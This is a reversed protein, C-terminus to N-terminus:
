QGPVDLLEIEYGRERAEDIFEPLIKVNTDSVTHLYFIAGNHLGTVMKALSEEPDPQDDVLWDAYTYSWFYTTYGLEQMVSLAAESYEGSPFRMIKHMEAGTLAHYADEVKKLDAAIGSKGSELFMEDYMPHNWSHNGILHGENYMRLFMTKLSPNVFLNGVIFFTFRVDKAKAIDLIRTANNHYEYGMTFTIYVKKVSTDGQWVAGYRDCMAQQTDQITPSVGEKNSAFFFWGLKKTSLGGAATPYSTPTPSPIITPVTTATTPSLTTTSAPTGTPGTSGSSSSGGMNGLRNMATSAIIIVAVAAVLALAAITNRRRIRAARRSRKIKRNNKYDTM